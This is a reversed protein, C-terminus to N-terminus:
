KDQRLFYAYLAPCTRQCFASFFNKVFKKFIMMSDYQNIMSFSFFKASKERVCVAFTFNKGPGILILSKFFNMFFINWRNQWCSGHCLICFVKIPRIAEPRTYRLYFISSIAISTFFFESFTGYLILIALDDILLM